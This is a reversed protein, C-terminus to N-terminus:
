VVQYAQRQLALVIQMSTKSTVQSMLVSRIVMTATQDSIATKVTPAVNSVTFTFSDTITDDQADKATVVVTYVGDVGGSSADADITGSILGTDSISM